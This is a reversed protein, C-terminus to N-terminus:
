RTLMTESDKDREGTPSDSPAFRRVLALGDDSHARSSTQLSDSSARDSSRGSDDLIQFQSVINQLDLALTSLEHCAKASQQAGEATEATIKAIQEVSGNVEETARSQEGAATAIQVVMEGVREASEIIEALSKGAAATTEEGAEVQRTGAEMAEVARRTEGQIGEIMEAIEKTAKSTREALKRVEDAVVAFGRGQEGARAAEIAANLALLNTQDAIDDIVGIIKGIAESSEGLHAVKKATDGVSQAIERMKGLTQEVIQGGQQATQSARRAMEAAQSSHQSIETVTAAMQQMATAVQSTQDKQLDAGASQQSAAASIQESATALRETAHGFRSLLQGLHDLFSNLSSAVRGIEDSSDASLRARLDGSAYQHLVPLIAALRRSAGRALAWTFFALCLFSAALAPLIIRQERTSATEVDQSVQRVQNELDSVVQDVLDTPPRDQGRVMHDAARYARGRSRDFRALALSYKSDLEKHASQFSELKSKASSDPLSEALEGALKEVAADESAFEGGYKARDKPDRGRLLVDKWAQVQKKFTLQLLRAQGAQAVQHALLDQYTRNLGDIRALLFLSLALVLALPLAGLVIIRTSLKIDHISM